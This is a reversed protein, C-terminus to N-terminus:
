QPVAGDATPSPDPNGVKMDPQTGDLRIMEGNQLVSSKGDKTLVTGDRMVKSGNELTVVNEMPVTNGNESRVMKGDQMTLFDEKPMAAAPFLAVFCLAATIAARTCLNM